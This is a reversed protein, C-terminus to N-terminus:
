QARALGGCAPRTASNHIPRGLYQSGLCGDSSTRDAGTSDRRRTGSAPPLLRLPADATTSASPGSVSRSTRSFLCDNDSGCSDASPEGREPWSLFPARSLRTRLVLRRVPQEHLMGDSSITARRGLRQTALHELEPELFPASMFKSM